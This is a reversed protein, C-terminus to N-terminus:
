NDGRRERLIGLASGWPRLYGQYVQKVWQRTALFQTQFALQHQPEQRGGEEERTQCVATALPKDLAELDQVNLVADMWHM